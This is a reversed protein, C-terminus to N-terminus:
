MEQSSLQPTVTPDRSKSDCTRNHMITPLNKTTVKSDLTQHQPVIDPIHDLDFFVHFTVWDRVLTSNSCDRFYLITEITLSLDSGPTYLALSVPGQWRDLLPELNDLFTFDGHTTYTITENCRFEKKGVM